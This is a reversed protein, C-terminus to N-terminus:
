IAVLPEVIRWGSQSMTHRLKALVPIINTISSDIRKYLVAANFEPLPLLCVPSSRVELIVVLRLRFM